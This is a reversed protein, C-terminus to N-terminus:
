RVPDVLNMDAIHRQLFYVVLAPPVLSLALCAALHAPHPFQNLFGSMAAPLTVASSGTVLVQAYVYENWSFLFAIVAGVAIGSRCMPVVIRVLTYFRSFGDIRALWEIPPINRFYGIMMWTVFPITITLTVIILGLRTGALDLQVYLAYFPILTSVPPLAVSLLIAFLLKNKHRFQLRAFVYALPIVVVMTVLTVIISVLISNILGDIIQGSQGSAHLELGSATVYDYGFVNFFAGPQPAPPFLPPPFLSFEATTQFAMKVFWYIPLISWVVAVGLALWRWVPTGTRM